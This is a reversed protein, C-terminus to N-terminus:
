FLHFSESQNKIRSEAMRKIPSKMRNRWAAKIREGKKIMGTRRLWNQFKAMSDISIFFM